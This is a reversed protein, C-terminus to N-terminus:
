LSLRYIKDDNKRVNGRGDTNSTTFWIEGAPSEVIERIRGFNINRLKVFTEAIEPDKESFSVVFIGEGRLGGFLLKDKFQPFLKGSYMLASAPAVAPTFVLKPSETGSMTKEHSVLPWGYNKGPKIINIEDGGGPGDIGSPGHETSVMMGTTKNWDIGQPNRHGYTYVPSNKFPNDEPISGDSEIRLIKGGLSDLEQAQDKNLADGTTIYLKGDPGFKLRCGAHYKAAPIKDILVKDISVNSGNDVLRLVKDYMNNEELYAYCTYLYKNNIYDPDVTLGMLGEEDGTIVDNITILPQSKLITNELVRISGTRETVLTRTESAFSISWPVDLNKAIEQIKYDVKNEEKQDTDQEKNSENIKSFTKDGNESIFYKTISGTNGLYREAFLVLGALLFTAVTVLILKLNPTFNIKPTFRM